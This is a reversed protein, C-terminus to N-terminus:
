WSTNNFPGASQEITEYLPQHWQNWTDLIGRKQAEQAFLRDKAAKLNAYETSSPSMQSARADFETEIINVFDVFDSVVQGTGLGMQERQFDTLWWAPRSAMEMAWLKREQPTKNFFTVQEPTPM